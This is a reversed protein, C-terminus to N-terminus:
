EITIARTLDPVGPASVRVEYRGPELQIRAPVELDFTLQSPANGASPERDAHTKRSATVVPQANVGSVTLTIETGAPLGSYEVVGYLNDTQTFVDKWGGVAYTGPEVYTGIAVRRLTAPATVESARNNTVPGSAAGDAGGQQSSCAAVLISL